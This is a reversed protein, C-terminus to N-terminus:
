KKEDCGGHECSQWWSKNIECQLYKVDEWCDLENILQKSDYCTSCSSIGLVVFSLFLNRLRRANSLNRM